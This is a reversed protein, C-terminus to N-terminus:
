HAWSRLSQEALTHLVLALDQPQLVAPRNGGEGADNEPNQMRQVSEEAIAEFSNIVIAM